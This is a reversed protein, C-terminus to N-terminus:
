AIYLFSVMFNRIVIKSVYFKSEMTVYLHFRLFILFEDKIMKDPYRYIYTNM